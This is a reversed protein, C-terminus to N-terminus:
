VPRRWPYPGSVGGMLTAGKRATASAQITVDELLHEFVSWGQEDQFRQARRVGRLDRLDRLDRPQEGIEACRRVASIAENGLISGGIPEQGGTGASAGRLRPRRLVDASVPSYALPSGPCAANRSPTNSFMTFIM